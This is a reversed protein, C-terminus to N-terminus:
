WGIVESLPKVNAANFINVLVEDPAQEIYEKLFRRVAAYEEKSLKKFEALTLLDTTPPTKSGVGKGSPNAAKEDTATPVYLASKNLAFINNMAISVLEDFSPQQHYAIFKDIKKTSSVASLKTLDLALTAVRRCQDVTVTLGGELRSKVEKFLDLRISIDAKLLNSFYGEVRKGYGASITDNKIAEKTSAIAAMLDEKTASLAVELYRKVLNGEAKIIYAVATKVKGM